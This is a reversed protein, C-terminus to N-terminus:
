SGAKKAQRKEKEFARYKQANSANMGGYKKRWRYCTQEFVGIRCVAEGIPKSQSCLVEVEPLKSIIQETTHTAKRM